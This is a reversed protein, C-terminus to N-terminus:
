LSSLILYDKRGRGARSVEFPIFRDSTAKDGSFIAFCYCYSYYICISNLFNDILYYSTTSLSPLYM